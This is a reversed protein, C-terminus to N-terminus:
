GGCGWQTATSRTSSSWSGGPSPGSWPLAGRQFIVGFSKVFAGELTERLSPPAKEALLRNLKPEKVEANQKLYADERRVQRAWEANWAAARKRDTM